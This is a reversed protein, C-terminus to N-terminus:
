LQCSASPSRLLIWSLRDFFFFINACANTESYFEIDKLFSRYKSNWRLIQRYNATGLCCCKHHISQSCCPLRRRSCCFVYDSIDFFVAFSHSFTLLDDHLPGRGSPMWCLRVTNLLMITKKLMLPRVDTLRHLAISVYADPPRDRPNFRGNLLM